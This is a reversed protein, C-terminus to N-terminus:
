FTWNIHKLPKLNHCTGCDFHAMIKFYDLVDLKYTQITKFQAM